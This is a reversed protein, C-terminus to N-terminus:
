ERWRGPELYAALAHGMDLKVLRPLSRHTRKLLRKLRRDLVHFLGQASTDVLVSMPQEAQAGGHRLRM